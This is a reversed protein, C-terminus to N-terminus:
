NEVEVLTPKRAASNTSGQSSIAAVKSSLMKRIKESAFFSFCPTAAGAFIELTNISKKIIFATAANFSLTQCFLFVTSSAQFLLFIIIAQVLVRTEQKNLASKKMSCIKFVVAVYMCFILVPIGFQLALEMFRIWESQPLDVVSGATECKLVFNDKKAKLFVYRCNNYAMLFIVLGPVLWVIGLWIYVFRSDFLTSSYNRFLFVSFRQIAIVLNSILISYHFYDATYSLIIYIDSTVFDPTLLSFLTAPVNIILNLSSLFFVSITLQSLFWYYKISKFQGWLLILLVLFAGTLLTCAIVSIVFLTIVLYYLSTKQQPPVEAEITLYKEDCFASSPFLLLLFVIFLRSLM